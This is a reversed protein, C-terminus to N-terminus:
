GLERLRRVTAETDRAILGMLKFAPGDPQHQGNEWLRYGNASMGLLDAMDQESLAAKESVELPDLPTPTDTTETAAEANM